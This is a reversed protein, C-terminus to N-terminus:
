YATGDVASQQNGASAKNTSEAGTYQGTANRIAKAASQLNTILEQTYQTVATAVQGTADKLYSAAGWSDPGYNAQASKTTVDSIASGQLSEVLNDITTAVDNMADADVKQKNPDASMGPWNQDPVVNLTYGGLGSAGNDSTDDGLSVRKDGGYNYDAM